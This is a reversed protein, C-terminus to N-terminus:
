RETTLRALAAQAAEVHSAMSPEPRYQWELYNRYANIAATRDGNVEALRGTERELTSLGREAGGFMRRRIAHYAAEREGVRELLRVAIISSVTRNLDGIAPGTLLLSDLALVQTRADAADRLVAAAADLVRACWWARIV